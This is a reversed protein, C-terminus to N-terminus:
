FGQTLGCFSLGEHAGQLLFRDRLGSGRKGVFGLDNGANLFEGAHALLRNELVRFETRKKLRRGDFTEVWGAESESYELYVQPPRCGPELTGLVM